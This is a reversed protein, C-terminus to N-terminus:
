AFCRVSRLDVFGALDRPSGRRVRVEYRTGAFYTAAKRLIDREAKLRALERRLREIEKQEPEMVGHGPFASGPDGQQERVSKRLVNEHLDLNRAAQSEAVGRERVLKVAEFKFERSLKWRQTEM